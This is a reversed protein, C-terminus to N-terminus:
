HDRGSSPANRKVLLEGERQVDDHLFQAAHLAVREPRHELRQEAAIERARIRCSRM